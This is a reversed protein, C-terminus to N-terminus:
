SDVFRLPSIFAKGKAFRKYSNVTPAYFAYLDPTHKLWGGLFHRFMESCGKVSGLTDDGRFLSKGNEDVLSLHIHCSSGADNQWPKAMFTISMGKQDAVEKMCQKFVVHRDAMTLVDSYTVNLEHQGIGTEGKSNEVPLGSERLMQRVYQHYPETRSGQLIHYDESNWGAAELAQYGQRNADKFSTNYLYYELESAAQIKSKPLLDAARSLQNRLISRPAIPVLEHTNSDHIDCLVLQTKDMWAARCMSNTDPVLHFDGYGTSWNAFDFGELPNMPMDVALTYTCAHTGEKAVVANYNGVDYRKGLLRGYVDTFGM